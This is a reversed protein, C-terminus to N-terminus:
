SLLMMFVPITFISILTTLSVILTAFETDTKYFGALVVIQMMAPLSAQIVFVKYMLDPIPMFHIVLVIALPSIVFRGLLIWALEKTMRINRVNIQYLIVGILIIALPTTMNGLYQAANFLFKPIPVELVILFIATFFAIMPMSFIKKVTGLSFLKVTSKGSDASICYNGITWFFTTNAFFYLLTYPLAAEGFLALNVPIGIFVTNSTSFAAHFLGRHGRDVNIVKALCWSIFFCILMAILPVIAGYVMHLLDDKNFTNILSCLLFLPLSVYTVIKPLAAKTEQGIWGQRAMMFGALGIILLSLVGEVAQLFIM